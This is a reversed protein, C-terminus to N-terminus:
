DPRIRVGEVYRFNVRCVLGVIKYYVRVGFYWLVPGDNVVAGLGRGIGM